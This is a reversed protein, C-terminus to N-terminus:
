QPKTKEVKQVNLESNDVGSAVQKPRKLINSLALEIIAGCDGGNSSGGVGQM